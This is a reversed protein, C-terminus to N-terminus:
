YSTVSQSPTVVTARADRAHSVLPVVVNTKLTVRVTTNM